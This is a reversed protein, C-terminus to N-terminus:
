HSWSRYVNSRQFLLSFLTGSAPDISFYAAEADGSRFAYTDTADAPIGEASELDTLDRGHVQIVETGPESNEAISVSYSSTTTALFLKTLSLNYESISYEMAIKVSYCQGPNNEYGIIM